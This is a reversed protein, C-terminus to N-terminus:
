PIIIFNYYHYIICNSSPFEGFENHTSGVNENLNKRKLNILLEFKIKMLVSYIM